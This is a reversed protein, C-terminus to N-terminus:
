MTTEKLKKRKKKKELKIKEPTFTMECNNKKQHESLEANQKIKM